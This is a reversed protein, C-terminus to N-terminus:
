FFRDVGVFLPTRVHDSLTAAPALPLREAIQPLVDKEIFAADRRIQEPAVAPAGAACPEAIVGGAAMPLRVGHDGREAKVTEARWRHEVAGNITRTEEGVDFLHQHGRQSRSIDDHQVVEPHMLLGLDPHRDLLHARVQSEERGVTRIEIRDFEREGFEFREQAGGARTVVLLDAAEDGYREAEERGVFAGIVGPM